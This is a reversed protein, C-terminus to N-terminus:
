RAFDDVEFAFQATQQGRAKVTVDRLKVVSARFTVRTVLTTEADLEHAAENWNPLWCALEYNGPPVRELSFRGTSDTHTLYPHDAVFLHGRMWFQGANSGLEVVGNQTLVREHPRDRDPLTLTFFAAGRAQVAQFRDDESVITIKDGRRVFGSNGDRDGQLVHYQCRRVSVRVPEHDWPRARQLDVGRLFVVAGAVGRSTADIVPAHPNPWLLKPGAPQESLPSIPARFPPVQPMAGEWTVRGAINGASIPDFAAALAVPAAPAQDDDFYTPTRTEDCGASDAGALLALVFVVGARGQM